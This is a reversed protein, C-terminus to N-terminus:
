NLHSWHQRAIHKHPVSHQYKHTPNCQVLTTILKHYAILKPNFCAQCQVSDWLWRDMTAVTQIPRINPFLISNINTSM